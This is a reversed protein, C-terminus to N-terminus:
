QFAHQLLLPFMGPADGDGHAAAAPSLSRLGGGGGARAFGDLLTLIDQVHTSIGMADAEDNSEVIYVAEGPSVYGDERGGASCFRGPPRLLTDNGRRFPVSLLRSSM